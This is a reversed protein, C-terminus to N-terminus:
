HIIIHKKIVTIECVKTKCHNSFLYVYGLDYDKATPVLSFALSGDHNHLKTRLITM